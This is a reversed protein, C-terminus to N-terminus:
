VNGHVLGRAHVCSVSAPWFCILASSASRPLRRWARKSACSSMSQRRSSNMASISPLSGAAIQWGNANAIFVPCFHQPDVYRVAHGVLGEKVVPTNELVVQSLLEKKKCLAPRSNTFSGAPPAM